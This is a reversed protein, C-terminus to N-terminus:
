AKRHKETALAFSNSVHLILKCCVLLHIGWLIHKINETWLHPKFADFM